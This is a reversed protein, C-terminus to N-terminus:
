SRMVVLRSMLRGFTLLSTVQLEFIATGPDDPGLQMTSRVSRRLIQGGALIAMHQTYAHALLLHPSDRSIKELRDLYLAVAQIPQGM